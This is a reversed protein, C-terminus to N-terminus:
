PRGHPRPPGLKPPIFPLRCPPFWPGPVLHRSRASVDHARFGRGSAWWVSVGVGKSKSLAWPHHRSRPRPPGRPSRSTARVPPVSIRYGEMRHPLLFEAPRGPMHGEQAGPSGVGRGPGAPRNDSAHPPFEPEICGPAGVPLSSRYQPSRSGIDRRGQVSSSPPDDRCSDRRTTPTRPHLTGSIEERGGASGSGLHAQPRRM